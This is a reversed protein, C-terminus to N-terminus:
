KGPSVTLLADHGASVDAGPQAKKTKITGGGTIVIPTVLNYGKAEIGERDFTVLTDGSKVQSGNAVSATFGEGNLKVTDIGIHILIEIGDKSTLAIAHGTEAIYTIVADCPAVIKNDAPQVAFGDGMTLQAFTEDPVESLSVVKGSVPTVLTIEKKRSFWGM